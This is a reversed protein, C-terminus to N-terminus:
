YTSVVHSYVTRIKKICSQVVNLSLNSCVEDTADELERQSKPNKNKIEQKIVNWVLEIANFDASYGPWNCLKIDHQKCWQRFQASRHWKVGDSVYVFGGLAEIDASLAENMQIESRIASSEDALEVQFVIEHTSTLNYTSDKARIRVYDEGEIATWEFVKTQINFTAGNPLHDASLVIVSTSYNSTGDITLRIREGHKAKMSVPLEINFLPPNILDAKISLIEDGADFSTQAFTEDRTISMDYYCTRQAANWSSSASDSAIKCTRRISEDEVATNIPETFSPVFLRNQNEFFEASQGSEYYFLSTDTHIAWTVGFQRHIEEALANSNVVIGNQARLDNTPEGDYTGLLGYTRGRFADTVSAAVNLVLAASPSVMEVLKIQVTVGITWSLILITSDIPNREITIEPFFLMHINDEFELLENGRRMVLNESRSVTISVSQSEPDSSKAAFGKTVTVNNSELPITRIQSM